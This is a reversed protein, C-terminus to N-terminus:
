SWSEILYNGDKGTTWKRNIYFRLTLLLPGKEPWEEAHGCGQVHMFGELNGPIYRQNWLGTYIDREGPKLTKTPRKNTRVTIAEETM